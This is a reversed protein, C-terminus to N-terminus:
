KEKLEIEMKQAKNHEKVSRYEDKKEEVIQQQKKIEERYQKTKQEL